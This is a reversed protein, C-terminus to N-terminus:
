HSCIKDPDTRFGGKEESFKGRERLFEILEDASMNERSCTYFTAKAGFKNIIDVKLSEKTYVKGSEVMLQMVDHGHIKDSM